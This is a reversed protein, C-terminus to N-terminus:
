ALSENTQELSNVASDASYSNASTHYSSSEEISPIVTNPISPSYSCGALGVSLMLVSMLSILKKM